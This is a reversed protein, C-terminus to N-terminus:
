CTVLRSCDQSSKMLKARCHQLEKLTRNEFEVARYIASELPQDSSPPSEGKAFRVGWGNTFGLWSKYPVSVLSEEHLMSAVTVNVAAASGFSLCAIEAPSLDRDERIEVDRTWQFLVMAVIVAVVFLVAFLTLFAPGNWDLPGLGIAALPLLGWALQRRCLSQWPWWTPKAIVWHDRTEVLRVQSCPDFREFPLPWIDRPPEEGFIRRYSALTQQYLDWHHRSEAPGGTTPDHHLPRQLTQQCLDIWYSRSYTLHQHWAADVSESPCVVHGAVCSLFLFRRYEELVRTTFEQSWGAETALRASFPKKAADADFAFAALERWLQQQEVPLPLPFRLPESM